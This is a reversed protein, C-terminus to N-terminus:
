QPPSVDNQVKSTYNDDIWYEWHVINNQSLVNGAALLLFIWLYIRKM